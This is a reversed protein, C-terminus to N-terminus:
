SGTSWVFLLLLIHIVLWYPQNSLCYLIQRCYPLDPIDWNTFFRGAICSVGTKNKPWSSGRSFPYAVWELIRLSGKHSMQYLIWRCHPLGPNLRQTPFIGQLFSDSGVGTNQSGVGTNQCLSNGPSYITWPTVFLRVSSFSKWESLNWDSLWSSGTFYIAVWDLIRAQLIGHVSSGPPSHDMSDCLTLSWQAVVDKVKKWGLLLVTLVIM